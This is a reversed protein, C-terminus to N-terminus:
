HYFFALLAAGIIGSDQGFTSVVLPIKKRLPEYILPDVADRLNTLFHKQAQMLGGGLVIVEPEIYHIINAIGRAMDQIWTECIPEALSDHNTALAFLEGPHAVVLGMEKARLMLATGSCVSEWSGPNSILNHALSQDRIMMQSIEQAFGYRGTLLRGDIALGGGLGTSITIYQVVHHNRGAGLNAEALAALNADNGIYVPINWDSELLAKLNFDGIGLNPLVYVDGTNSNVPGCVGVGLGRPHYSAIDLQDSLRRIRQVLEEPSRITGTAEKVVKVIAGLESVVAVRIWTGGLDVGIAYEM